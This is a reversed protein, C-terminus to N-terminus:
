ITNYLIERFNPPTYFTTSRYEIVYYVEWGDIIYVGRESLGFKAGLFLVSGTAAAKPTLFVGVTAVALFM